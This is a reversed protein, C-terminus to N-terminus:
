ATREPVGNRHVRENAAGQQRIALRPDQTLGTTRCHALFGADQNLASKHSGSYHLARTHAKSCITSHKFSKCVEGQGVRARDRVARGTHSEPNFRFCLSLCTLMGYHWVALPRTM